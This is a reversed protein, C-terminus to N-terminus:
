KLSALLSELKGKAKGALRGPDIKDRNVLEGVVVLAVMGMPLHPRCAVVYIGPVTFLVKVDHNVGGEFPQAGEPIMGPVSHVDHGKDVAVFAIVDGPQIRVVDPSFVFLAGNAGRNLTKIEVEGALASRSGSVAVALALLLGGARRGAIRSRSTTMMTTM